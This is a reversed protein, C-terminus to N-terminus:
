LDYNVLAFRREPLRSWPEVEVIRYIPLSEGQRHPNLTQLRTRLHQLETSLLELRHQREDPLLRPQNEMRVALATLEVTLETLAGVPRPPSGGDLRRKLELYVAEARDRPRRLTIRREWVEGSELVAQLRIQRVGRDRREPRQFVRELLQHLGLDFDAATPATMPFTLTESIAPPPEYPLLPERDEGGALRHLRDGEWGFQALFASRPLRAIQGLTRLGLLRLRRHIEPDAPLLRSPLRELFLAGAEAPVAISRVATASWAAAWATFKGHAVGIRPSFEPPVLPRVAAATPEARDHDLEEIGSLDLYFVELPAAEVRPSVRDLESLLARYRAEYWPSDFPLPVVGPCRQPLSQAPMGARLGAAAATPSCARVVVTRQGPLSGVLVVPRHQLGPRRALEARVAFDPLWLCAM